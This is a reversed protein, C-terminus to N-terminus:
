AFSAFNSISPERCRLTSISIPDPCFAAPFTCAATGDEVQGVGISGRKASRRAQGMVLSSRSKVRRRAFEDTAVGTKGEGNTIADWDHKGIGCASHTSWNVRM